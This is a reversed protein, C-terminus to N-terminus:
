AYRQTTSTSTKWGASCLNPRQQRRPLLTAPVPHWRSGEVSRRLTRAVEARDPNEQQKNSAVFELDADNRPQSAGDRASDSGHLARLCVTAAATSTEAADNAKARRIQAFFSAADAKLSQFVAHRRQENAEADSSGVHAEDDRSQQADDPESDSCQRPRLDETGAITAAPPM